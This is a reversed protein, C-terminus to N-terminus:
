KLKVLVNDKKEEFINGDALNVNEYFIPQCGLPNGRDAKFV